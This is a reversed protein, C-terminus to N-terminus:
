ATTVAGGALFADVQHRTPISSQAGFKTVSLAAAANAFRAAEDHARGEALGVAFAGNFTDGAATTDVAQVAFAPVRRRSRADAILCGLAGLKLIINSPGLKLLESAADEAEDFTEITEDTGLLLAAETQNPTLFTV